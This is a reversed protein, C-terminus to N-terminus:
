RELEIVLQNMESLMKAVEHYQGREYAADSNAKIVSLKWALEKKRLLQWRGPLWWTELTDSLYIAVHKSIMESYRSYLSERAVDLLYLQEVDTIDSQLGHQINLPIEVDDNISQLARLLRRNKAIAAPLLEKIYVQGARDTDTGFNINKALPANITRYPSIAEAKWYEWRDFYGDGVTDFMRIEGLNEESRIAGIPLWGEQAGKLHLRQDVPSFYLERMSSPNKDYERRMNWYQNPGGTNHLLRRQWTWFVGEWRQDYDVRERWDGLQVTADPYERWSFGTATAPYTVAFKVAETHPVSYSDRPPRRLRDTIRYREMDYPKSGVMQFGLEYHLPSATSSGGDIDLSYRVALAGPERMIPDIPGMMRNWSNAYDPDVVPDFKLPGASIRVVSESQTDGDTDHFSFPCEGFPLWSQSAPDYKNHYFMNDGYADIMFALRPGVLRQYDHVPYQQNDDDLDLHVISQRLFGDEFYRIDQIDPDDDGDEDIYDLLRDIVGDAGYDVVYADSDYDGQPVTTDMDGDDDIILVIMEKGEQLLQSGWVKENYPVPTGVSRKLLLKGQRDFKSYMLISENVKLAQAQPWWNRLLLPVRLRGDSDM